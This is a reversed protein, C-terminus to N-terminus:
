RHAHAHAHAPAHKTHLIPEFSSSFLFPDAFNKRLIDDKNFKLQDNIIKPEIAQPVIQMIFITPPM